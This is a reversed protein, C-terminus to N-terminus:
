GLTTGLQGWLPRLGIWGLELGLGVLSICKRTFLGPVVGIMYKRLLMGKELTEAFILVAVTKVLDNRM